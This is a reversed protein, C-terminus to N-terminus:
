SNPLSQKSKNAASSRRALFVFFTAAGCLVCGIIGLLALIGANMGKAMPSDSAGYCAPCALAQGNILSLGALSILAILTRITKM